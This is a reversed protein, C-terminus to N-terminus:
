VVRIAGLVRRDAITYIGFGGSKLVFPSEFVLLHVYLMCKTLQGSPLQSFKLNSPRQRMSLPTVSITHM